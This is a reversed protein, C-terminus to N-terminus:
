GGHSGLRQGSRVLGPRARVRRTPTCREGADTMLVTTPPASQHAPCPPTGLWGTRPYAAKGSWTVNEPRALTLGTLLNTPRWKARPLLQGSFEECHSFNKRRGRYPVVPGLQPCSRRRRGAVALAQRCRAPLRGAVSAAALVEASSAVFRSTLTVPLPGAFSRCGNMTWKRRCGRCSLRQPHVRM